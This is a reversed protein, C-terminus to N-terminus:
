FAIIRPPRGFMLLPEAARAQERLAQDGAWGVIITREGSPGESDARSLLRFAIQGMM